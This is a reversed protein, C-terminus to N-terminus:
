ISFKKEELELRDGKLKLSTLTLGGAECLVTEPNGLQGGHVL